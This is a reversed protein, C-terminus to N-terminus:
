GHVDTCAGVNPQTRCPMTDDYREFNAGDSYLTQDGDFSILKPGNFPIRLDKGEGHEAEDEHDNDGELDTGSLTGFSSASMSHSTFLPNMRRNTSEEDAVRPRLAMIQALNLIHRIENFSIQIHKRKTLRHKENYLEFATRLPLPTHFVGVTPVVQMLRSPVPSDQKARHEEILAEFHEFTDAATTELSDLVFSHQLM